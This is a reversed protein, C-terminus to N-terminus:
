LRGMWIKPNQLHDYQALDDKFVNLSTIKRMVLARTTLVLEDSFRSFIKLEVCKKTETTKAEVGDVEACIKDCRIALAQRAHETQSGM